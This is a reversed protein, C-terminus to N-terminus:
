LIKKIDECALVTGESTVWCMKHCIIDEIGKEIAEWQDIAQGKVIYATGKTKGVTEDADKMKKREREEREYVGAYFNGGSRAKKGYGVKEHRAFASIYKRLGRTKDGLKSLLDQDTIGSDKKDSQYCKYQLNASEGNELINNLVYDNKNSLQPEPKYSPLPTLPLNMNSKNVKDVSSHCAKYLNTDVYCHADVGKINILFYEFKGGEWELSFVETYEFRTQNSLEKFCPEIQQLFDDAGQVKSDDFDQNKIRIQANTKGNIVGCAVSTIYKKFDKEGKASGSVIEFTLEFLHQFFHLFYKM